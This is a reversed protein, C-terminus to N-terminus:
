SIDKLRVKAMVSEVNEADKRKRFNFFRVSLIILACAIWFFALYYIWNM